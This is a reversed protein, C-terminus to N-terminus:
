TCAFFRLRGLYGKVPKYTSSVRRGQWFFRRQKKMENGRNLVLVTGVPLFDAKYLGDTNKCTSM